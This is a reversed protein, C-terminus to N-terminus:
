ETCRFNVSVVDRGDYPWGWGCGSLWGGMASCRGGECRRGSVWGFLAWAAASAAASGALFSGVALAFEWADVLVKSRVVGALVISSSAAIPDEGLTWVAVL